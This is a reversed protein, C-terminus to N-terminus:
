LFVIAAVQCSCYFAKDGIETVTDPIVVSRIKKGNFAEEGIVAVRLGSITSPIVVNEVDGTYGTIELTNNPLQRVRFMAETVTRNAREQQQQAQAQM